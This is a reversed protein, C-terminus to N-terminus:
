VQDYNGPATPNYYMPMNNEVTKSAETTKASFM